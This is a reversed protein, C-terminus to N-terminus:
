ARSVFEEAIMWKERLRFAPITQRKAKNAATNGRLNNQKAWVSLPIIKRASLFAIRKHLAEQLLLALLKSFGDFKQTSQYKTFLSYYDHHKNKNHHDVLDQMLHPVFKPNAGLHSGVM